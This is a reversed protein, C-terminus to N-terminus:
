GEQLFAARSLRVVGDPFVEVGGVTRRTRPSTASATSTSSRTTRAAGARHGERLADAASPPTPPGPPRPWAARRGRRQQLRRLQQRRRHGPLQEHQRAPRDPGVLRAPDGRLRRRDAPRAADLVRGARHTLAFGGPELARRCRRGRLAAVEATNSTKVTIPFPVPVGAQQSCSGPRPRTTRSAPRAAPAPTRRPPRSRRAPRSTGTTSSRTSSRAATSPTRSRWGSARTAPGAPHRDAEAARRRRRHQRPQDDDGPLRALQDAAPRRRTEKVLADVDQTSISDAVQIDGSRLNAARINADSMIRYTITDLHVQDAAYYTPDRRSPSRPRRSAPSSASRGSAPRTRRQVRRRPRGAGDPSMIM